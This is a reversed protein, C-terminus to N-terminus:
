NHNSTNEALHQLMTVCLPHKDRIDLDMKDYLKYKEAYVTEIAAEFGCSYAIKISYASAFNGMVVRHGAEESLQVSFEVLKRGIGQRGHRVHLFLIQWYKSCSHFIFNYIDCQVVNLLLLATVTNYHDTITTTRKMLDPLYSDPM